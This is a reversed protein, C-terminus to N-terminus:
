FEIALQATALSRKDNNEYEGHLYEVALSTNEFLGYIVAAGYQKNPLFDGLDDGGEYKVAVELEETVAYALELNWTNPEFAKGGDFSLEGAQFGETAGLYEIDFFLKDKLSASIFASLGGVHGKITAASVGTGVEQLGDSDAINTIYSAGASLALGAVIEEPFAFVCSAVYSQIRNDEGTEDTDGNFTGLSLEVWDNVFGGLVASERTEGLELTLPDSIFHSEFRGFPVYMRGANLYLPLVDEGDVSIIGEDVEIPETDDEEFLFLIHGKVHKSIDADVGLELTALVIDSSREDDVAPDVHDIAEFSAEVEILGSLEIRDPWAGLPPGEEMEAEMKKLREALGKVSHYHRQEQSKLREMIEEKLAEKELDRPTGAEVEQRLTASEQKSIIGKKELLKLLLETDQSLAHANSCILFLALFLTVRVVIWKCKKM